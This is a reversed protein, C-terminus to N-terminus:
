NRNNRPMMPTSTRMHDDALPESTVPANINVANDPEGIDQNWGEETQLPAKSFQPGNVLDTIVAISVDRAIGAAEAEAILTTLKPRFWDHSSTSDAM